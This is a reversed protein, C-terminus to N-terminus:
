KRESKRKVAKKTKTTVKDGKANDKPNPSSEGETRPETTKPRDIKLFEKLNIVENVYGGKIGETKLISLFVHHIKRELSVALGEDHVFCVGIEEPEAKVAAVCLIAEERAEATTKVSSKWEFYKM